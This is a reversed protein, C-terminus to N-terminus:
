LSLLKSIDLGRASKRVREDGLQGSCLFSNCVMHNTSVNLPQLFHKKKIFSCFFLILFVINFSEFCTTPMQLIFSSLSIFFCKIHEKSVTRKYEFFNNDNAKNQIGVPSFHFGILYM